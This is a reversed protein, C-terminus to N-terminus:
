NCSEAGKELSIAESRYLEAEQNEYSFVLRFCFFKAEGPDIIRALRKAIEEAYFHDEELALNEACSYLYLNENWEQNYFLSAFSFNKEPPQFSQWSQIEKEQKQMLAFDIRPRPSIDKFFQWSPFLVPLILKLTQLM